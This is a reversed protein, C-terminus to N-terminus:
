LPFTASLRRVRPEEVANDLVSVVVVSTDDVPRGEDLALARALIADAIQQANRESALIEALLPVLNLSEGRRSGAAAVGDSSVVAVTGPLLAIEEIVPKTNPYLGIANAPADLVRCVGGQVVYAACHTNRSIVLTRSALDVSIIQLEASVQGRRHTCLYDHAARAAAGDRVGEGLLSIAKRAVINSIIKASRGSRQGDVLVASVGGNPREILEVTDGSESVAYKAVKAVGVQVDM